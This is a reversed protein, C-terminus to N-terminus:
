RWFMKVITDFFAKVVNVLEKWWEMSVSVGQTHIKHLMQNIEAGNAYKRNVRTVVDGDLQIVTQLAVEEVGVEWAKRTFVLEDPHLALPPTKKDEIETHTYENDWQEEGRNKLSNFVGKIGDSMDKIRYVLFLDAEEQPTLIKQKAKSEYNKLGKDAAERLTDFSKFSGEKDFVGRHEEPSCLGLGILKQWYWRGIDILAHRPTPMKGATITDTVITNVELNLLDKAIKNIEEKLNKM